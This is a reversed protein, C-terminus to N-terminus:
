KEEKKLIIKPILIKLAYIYAFVNLLSLLTIDIDSGYLYKGYAAFGVSNILIALLIM